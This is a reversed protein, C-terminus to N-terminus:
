ITIVKQYNTIAEVTDQMNTVTGIKLQDQRQYYDLCTGCSLIQCGHIELKHLIELTTSETTTLFIANNLFIIKDPFVNVKFFSKFFNNLLTNSLDPEGEGFGASKILILLNQNTPM